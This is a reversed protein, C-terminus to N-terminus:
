PLLIRRNIVRNGAFRLLRIKKLLSRNGTYINQLLILKIAVKFGFNCCNTYIPVLNEVQWTGLDSIKIPVM